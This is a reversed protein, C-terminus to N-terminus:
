SAESVLMKWRKSMYYSYILLTILVTIATALSVGAPGIWRGLLISAALNFISSPPGIFAQIKIEGIGNMFINFSSMIGYLVTTTSMSILLDLEPSIEKTTLFRIFQQGFIVMFLSTTISWALGLLVSHKFTKTVWKFERRSFAETYASWFPFVLTGQITSILSFLKLAVGYRAVDVAGFLQAVVLLDTQLLIIVTIQGLWFQFGVKLLSWAQDWKFHTFSPRLWPRSWFYLHIGAAVNGLLPTAFVALALTPLNAHQSVATILAILSAITSLAAWINSLYGEQYASYIDLPAALILQALFIAAVVVMASSADEKALPSSVNFVKSWDIQPHLFWFLLGVLAVIVLILGFVSSVATKAKERDGQGHATALINRLSNALGFDALIVWALFSNLILWMGYREAGLYKSTLPVSILAIAM